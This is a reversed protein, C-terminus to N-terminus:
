HARLRFGMEPEVVVSVVQRGAQVVFRKDLLFDRANKEVAPPATPAECQRLAALQAATLVTWDGHPSSRSDVVATVGSDLQLLMLAPRQWDTWRDKWRAVANTLACAARSEGGTAFTGRFHYALRSLDASAPYISGYVPLPQLGTIGFADPRMFYPSYRDILVATCGSPPQLHELSPVLAAMAAYDDEDDGPVHVLLNWNVDLQRSACDRLLAINQAASVGKEILRLVRDSLSEIGPQIANIGARVFLDLMAPRVNAKVEYFLDLRRQRGALTSLVDSTDLPLINDAAHLTTVGYRGVLQELEDILRPGSKRRYAMGGANLGCFTCHKKQGWWCGRSSEFPMSAPLGPPLTGAAVFPAIAAFYDDYRPLPLRDLDRVPSGRVVRRRVATDGLLERCLPTFLEDAEGSVVVDFCPAIEALAEGMPEDANPGGLLTIRDNAVAKVARAIAVAAGNQQFASSFGVIKAGGRVIEQAVDTVLADVAAVLDECGDLPPSTGFAAAAFLREGLASVSSSDAIQEYRDLGMRAAMTVNAYTISCHIGERECAAALLSPGLAPYRATAFPPVVITVAPQADSPM